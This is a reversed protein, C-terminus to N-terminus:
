DAKRLVSMDAKQADVVTFGQQNASNVKASSAKTQSFSHAAYLGVSLCVIIVLSLLLIKLTKTKM